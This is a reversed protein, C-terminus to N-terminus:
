FQKLIETSATVVDPLWSSADLPQPLGRAMAFLNDSAKGLGSQGSSLLQNIASTSGRPLSVSTGVKASRPLSPLTSSLGLATRRLADTRDRADAEEARRAQTRAAAEAAAQSLASDQASRAINAPNLGLGSATRTSTGRANAFAQRVDAAAQAAAGRTDPTEGQLADATVQAQLPALQAMTTLAQDVGARKLTADLELDGLASAVQAQKLPQYLAMDSVAQRAAAQELPTYIRQYANWQERALGLQERAVDAQQNALDTAQQTYDQVAQNQAQAAKYAMTSSLITAAPAALSNVFGGIGSM